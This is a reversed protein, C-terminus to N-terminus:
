QIPTREENPVDEFEEPFEAELRAKLEAVIPIGDDLMPDFFYDLIRDFTRRSMVIKDANSM